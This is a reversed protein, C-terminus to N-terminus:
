NGMMVDAEFEGDAWLERRHRRACTLAGGIGIGNSCCYVQGNPLAVALGTDQCFGIGDPRLICGESQLVAFDFAQPPCCAVYVPCEIDTLISITYGGLGTWCYTSYDTFDSNYLSADLHCAFEDDDNDDATSSKGGKGNNSGNNSGAPSLGMINLVHYFGDVASPAWIRPYPFSISGNNSSSGNKGSGNSKKM